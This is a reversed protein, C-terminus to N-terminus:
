KLAILPFSSRIGDLIVVPPDEGNGQDTDSTSAASLNSEARGIPVSSADVAGGQSLGRTEREARGAPASSADVTGGQPSGRTETEGRGARASYDDM